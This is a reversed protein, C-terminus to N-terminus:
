EHRGKAIRERLLARERERELEDRAEAHMIVVLLVADLLVLLDSCTEMAPLCRAPARREAGSSHLVIPAGRRRVRLIFSVLAALEDGLKRDRWTKFDIIGTM